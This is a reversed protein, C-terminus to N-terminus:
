TALRTEDVAHRLWRYYPSTPCESSSCLRAIRRRYSSNTLTRQECRRSKRPSQRTWTLQNLRDSRCQPFVSSLRLGGSYVHLIHRPEHRRWSLYTPSGVCSPRDWEAEEGRRLVQDGYVVALESSATKSGCCRDVDCRSHSEREKKHRRWM